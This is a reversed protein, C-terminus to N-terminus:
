VYEFLLMVFHFRCALSILRDIMQVSLFLGSCICQLNIHLQCCTMNTNLQSINFKLLYQLTDIENIFLSIILYILNLM